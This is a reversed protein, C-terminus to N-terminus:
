PHDPAHCSRSPPELLERHVQQSWLMYLSDCQSRGARQVQREVFVVLLLGVEVELLGIQEGLTNEVEAGGDFPRKEVIARM